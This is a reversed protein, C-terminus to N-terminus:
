TNYIDLENYKSLHLPEGISGQRLVAPHKPHGKAFLERVNKLGLAYNFYFLNGITTSKLDEGSGNYGRFVRNGTEETQDSLIPLVTLDGMNQRLASQTTGSFYLTDNLYFRMLVGNEFDNIAVGDEFTFTMMAWRNQVLNVANIRLTDDLHYGNKPSITMSTMPDILTNFEVVIEDFTKGFRIRPCRVFVDTKTNDGTLEYRTLPINTVPDVDVKSKYTQFTYVNPDGRMFLTKGAVNPASTDRIQIWMSYSFQAGGVRNYSRNLSVFNAALPNITSWSTGSIASAEAFGDIISVNLKPPTKKTPDLVLTTTGLLALATWYIVVTALIGLTIQIAIGMSSTLVLPM